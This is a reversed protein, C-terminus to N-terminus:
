CSRASSAKKGPIQPSLDATLQWGGGNIVSVTSLVEEVATTEKDPM